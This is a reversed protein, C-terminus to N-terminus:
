KKNKKKNSKQEAPKEESEPQEIFEDDIETQEITPEKIETIATEVKITNDEKPVVGAIADINVELTAKNNKEGTEVVVTKIGVIESVRVIRGIIGSTLQVVDGAKLDGQMQKYQEMRKKNNVSGMIYFVLLALLLVGLLVLSSTGNTNALLFSNM